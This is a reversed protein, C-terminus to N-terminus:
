AISADFDKRYVWLLRALMLSQTFCVIAYVQSPYVELKKLFTNVYTALVCAWVAAGILQVCARMSMTGRASAVGMVIGVMIYIAGWVRLPAVNAMLTFSFAATLPAAMILAVGFMIALWKLAGELLQFADRPM